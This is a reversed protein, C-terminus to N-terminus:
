RSPRSASRHSRACPGVVEEFTALDRESKPFGDILCAAGGGAAVGQQVLQALKTPPVVQGQRIMHSLELGLATGEAMEAQLLESVSLRHLGLEEALADAHEQRGSAEPGLAVM